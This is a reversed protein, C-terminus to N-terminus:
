VRSCFSVSLRLCNTDNARNPGSFPVLVEFCKICFECCCDIELKFPKGRMQGGFWSICNTGLCRYKEEEEEEKGKENEDKRQRKM